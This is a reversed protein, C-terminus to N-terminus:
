LSHGHDAPESSPTADLVIAYTQARRDAGAVGTNVTVQHYSHNADIPETLVGSEFLVTKPKIDNM